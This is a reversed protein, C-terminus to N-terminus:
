SGSDGEADDVEEVAIAAPMEDDDPDRWMEKLEYHLLCELDAATIERQDEASYARIRVRFTAM